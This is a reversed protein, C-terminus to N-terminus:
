QRDNRMTQLKENDTKGVKVCMESLREVDEVCGGWIMWVVRGYGECLWGVDEM